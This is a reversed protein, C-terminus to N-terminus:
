IQQLVEIHHHKVHTILVVREIHANVTSEEEDRQEEPQQERHLHHQHDVVLLNGFTMVVALAIDDHLIDAHAAILDALADARLDQGYEEQRKDRSCDM